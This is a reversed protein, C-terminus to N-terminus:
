GIDGPNLILIGRKVLGKQAEAIRVLQFARQQIKQGIGNLEGWLSSANVNREGADAVGQPQANLVAAAADCPLKQARDKGPIGTLGGNLIATESDSQTHGHNARGRRLM